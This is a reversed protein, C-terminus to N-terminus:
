CLRRAPAVLWGYRRRDKAGLRAGVECSTSAVTSTRLRVGIAGKWDNLTHFRVGRVEKNALRKVKSPEQTLLIHVLWMLFTRLSRASRRGSRALRTRLGNRRRSWWIEISLGGM